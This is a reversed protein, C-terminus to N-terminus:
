KSRYMPSTNVIALELRCTRAAPRLDSKFVRWRMVFALSTVSAYRGLAHGLPASACDKALLTESRPGRYGTSRPHVRSLRWPTNRVTPGHPRTVLRFRSRRLRTLSM